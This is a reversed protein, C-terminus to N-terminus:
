REEEPEFLRAAVGNVLAVFAVLHQQFHAPSASAGSQAHGSLSDILRNISTCGPIPLINVLHTSLPCKRLLGQIVIYIGKSRCPTPIFM